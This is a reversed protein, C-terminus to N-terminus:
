ISFFLRQQNGVGVIAFEKVRSESKFAPGQEFVQLDTSIAIRYGRKIADLVTQKLSLQEPPPSAATGFGLVPM